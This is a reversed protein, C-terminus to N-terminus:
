TGLVGAGRRTSRDLQSDVAASRVIRWGLWPHSAGTLSLPLGSGNRRSGRKRDRFRFGHWARDRRAFRGLRPRSRPEPGGCSPVADRAAAARHRTPDPDCPRACLLQAVMRDIAWDELVHAFGEAADIALALYRRQYRGDSLSVVTRRPRIGIECRSDSWSAVELEVPIGLFGDRPYLRGSVQRLPSTAGRRLVEGTGTLRLETRAMEIEWSGKIDAVSENQHMDFVAQATLPPLHLPRAVYLSRIVPQDVIHCFM